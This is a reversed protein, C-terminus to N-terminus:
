RNSSFFRKKMGYMESYQETARMQLFDDDFIQPLGFVVLNQDIVEM